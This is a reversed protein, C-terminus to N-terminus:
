LQFGRSARKSNRLCMASHEWKQFRTYCRITFLCILSRRDTNDLISESHPLEQRDQDPLYPARFEALPFRKTLIKPNRETSAPSLVLSGSGDIVMHRLKWLLTDPFQINMDGLDVASSLASEIPEQHEMISAEKRVPSLASGYGRKSGTTINSMRKLFRKGRSDKKEERGGEMAIASNFSKESTSRPLDLDSGNRSSGSRWSAFSERRSMKPSLQKSTDGSRSSNTRVYQPQPPQLPSLPPPSSIMSQHEVLLPSQHLPPMRTGLDVPKEPSKNNPDRIITATVSISEPRPQPFGSLVPSTTTPPPISPSPLNSTPQSSSNGLEPSAPPSRLSNKRDSISIFTAQPTSQLTPSTPRNSLQELAKIRQSISSSVGTKKAAATQNPQINAWPTASASFSRISSPTPLAPPSDETGRDALPSSVTRLPKPKDTSRQESGNRSFVPKIPSKSVSIPKAEQVAATKLEEMFSDDSLFQEESQDPSSTRKLSAAIGRRKLRKEGQSADTSASLPALDPTLSEVTTTSLSLPQQNTTSPDPPQPITTAESEIPSSKEISPNAPAISTEQTDQIPEVSLFSAELASPSDRDPSHRSPTKQELKAELGLGLGISTALLQQLDDTSQEATSTERDSGNALSGLQVTDEDFHGQIPLLDESSSSEDNSDPSQLPSESEIHSFSDGKRRQVVESHATPDKTAPSSDFGPSSKNQQQLPDLYVRVVEDKGDEDFRSTPRSLASEKAFEINAPPRSRTEKGAPCLGGYPQSAGAYHDGKTEAGKGTVEDEVAGSQSVPAETEPGSAPELVVITTPRETNQNEDERITEESAHSPKQSTTEDGSVSSAQTSQGESPEPASIPSDQPELERSIEVAGNVYIDAELESGPKRAADPQPSQGPTTSTSQVKPAASGGHEVETKEKPEYQVPEPKAALKKNRLELAKMLRRKEPTLSPQKPQSAKTPAHSGQTSSTNSQMPASPPPPPLPVKPPASSTFPSNKQESQAKSLGQKRVPMRLGAPLTSVPRYVGNTGATSPRKVSDISPRPGLKVKPKYEYAMNLDSASPRASQSSLRGSLGSFSPRSDFDYISRPKTSAPNTTKEPLSPLAKNTDSLKRSHLSTPPSPSHEQEREHKRMASLIETVKEHRTQADDRTPTSLSNEVREEVVKDPKQTVESRADGEDETIGSLHSESVSRISAATHLAIESSLSSDKLEDPDVFAYVADRPTFKDEVSQFHVAM